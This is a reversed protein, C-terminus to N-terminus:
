DLLRQRLTQLAALGAIVIIGMWKWITEVTFELQILVRDLWGLVRELLHPEYGLFEAEVHIEDKGATFEFAAELTLHRPQDSRQLQTQRQSTLWGNGQTQQFTMGQLEDWAPEPRLQNPDVWEASIAPGPEPQTSPEAAIAPISVIPLAALAGIVSRMVWHGLSPVNLEPRQGPLYVSAGASPVPRLRTLSSTLRQSAQKLRLQAQSTRIAWAIRAKLVVQQRLSLVNLIQQQTTVLVLSHNEILSAIGQITCVQPQTQPLEKSCSKTSCSSLYAQSTDIIKELQSQEQRLPLLSAKLREILQPLPRSRLASGSADFSQSGVTSSSPKLQHQVTGYFTKWYSKCALLAEAGWRGITSAQRVFTQTRDRVARLRHLLTTLVKSRYQPFPSM